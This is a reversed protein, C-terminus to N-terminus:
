LDLSMRDHGFGPSDCLVSAPDDGRQLARPGRDLIPVRVHRIDHDHGPRPQILLACTVPQDCHVRVPCAPPTRSKRRLRRRSRRPGAGTGPRGPWGPAARLRRRRPGPRRRTRCASSALCAAPGADLARAEGLGPADLECRFLNLVPRDHAAQAAGREFRGVALVRLLSGQGLHRPPRM